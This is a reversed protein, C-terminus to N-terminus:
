LGLRAWFDKPDLAAEIRGRGSWSPHPLPPLAPRLSPLARKRRAPPRTM